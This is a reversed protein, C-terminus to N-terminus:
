KGFLSSLRDAGYLAKLDLYYAAIACQALPATFLIGLGCGIIGSFSLLGFVIFVWLTQWRRGETIAASISFAAIANAGEAAPYYVLGWRAAAILGLATSILGAGALLPWWLLFHSVFIEKPTEHQHLMLPIYLVLFAIILPMTVVMGIAARIWFVGWWRGYNVFESFLNEIEATKGKTMNLFFIILGGTLIPAVFPGFLYNVCPIISGVFMIIGLLLLGVIGMGIQRSYAGWGVTFAHGVTGADPAPLDDYEQPLQVAPMPPVTPPIMSPPPLFVPPASANIPPNEPAVPSPDPAAGPNPTKCQACALAEDNNLTGCQPCVWM